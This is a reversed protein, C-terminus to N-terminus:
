NLQWTIRHVHQLAVVADGRYLERDDRGHQQRDQQADELEAAGHVVIENQGVGSGLAREGDCQPSARGSGVRRGDRRDGGSRRVQRGGVDGRRDGDIAGGARGIRAARCREHGADRGDHLRGIGAVQRDHADVVRRVAAGQLRLRRLHNLSSPLIFIMLIRRSRRPAVATSNATVAVPSNPVMPSVTSTARTNAALLAKVAAVCAADSAPACASSCVLAVCVVTAAATEDHVLALAGAFTVMVLVVVASLQTVAVALRGLQEPALGFATLTLWVPLTEVCKRLAKPKEEKESAELEDAALAPPCPVGSFTINTSSEVPDILLASVPQVIEPM